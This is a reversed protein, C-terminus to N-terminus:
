CLFNTPVLEFNFIKFPNFQFPQYYWDGRDSFESPMGSKAMHVIYTSRQEAARALCTVSFFLVSLLLAMRQQSESGM